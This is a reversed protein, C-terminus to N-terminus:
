RYFYVLKAKQESVLEGLRTKRDTHTQRCLGAAGLTSRTAKIWPRAFSGKPDEVLGECCKQNRMWIKIYAHSAKPKLVLLALFVVQEINALLM